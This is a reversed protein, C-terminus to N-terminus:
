KALSVMSEPIVTMAVVLGMAIVIAGMVIAVAMNGEKLEEMEDLGPTLVNYLRLALALSIAMAIAGTLAWGLTMLYNFFV